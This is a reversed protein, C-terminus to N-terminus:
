VVGVVGVAARKKLHLSIGPLLRMTMEIRITSTLPLCLMCYVRGRTKAFSIRNRGTATLLEQQLISSDNQQQQRHHHSYKHHPKKQFSDTESAPESHSSTGGGAVCALTMTVNHHQVEDDNSIGDRNNDHSTKTCAIM